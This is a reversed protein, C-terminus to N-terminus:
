WSGGLQKYTYIIESLKSRSARSIANEITENGYKLVLVPDDKKLIFEVFRKINDDLPAFWEYYGNNRRSLPSFQLTSKTGASITIIEDPLKNTDSIFTFYLRSETPGAHIFLTVLPLQNVTSSIQIIDGDSEKIVFNELAAFSKVLRGRDIVAIDTSDASPREQTGSSAAFSAEALRNELEAIEAKLASIEEEKEAISLLREEDNKELDEIRQKLSEITEESEQKEQAALERESQLQEELETIAATDTTTCSILPLFLILIVKKLKM